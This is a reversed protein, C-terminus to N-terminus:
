DRYRAGADAAGPSRFWGHRREQDAVGACAPEVAASRSRRLIRLVVSFKAWAEETGCCHVRDWKRWREEGRGAWVPDGARAAYLERRERQHRATRGCDGDRAM